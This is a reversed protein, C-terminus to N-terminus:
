LKIVNTFFNKLKCFREAPIPKTRKSKFNLNKIFKLSWSETKILLKSAYVQDLINLGYYKMNWTNKMSLINLVTM